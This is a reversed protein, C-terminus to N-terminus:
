GGRRTGDYRWTLRDASHRFAVRLTMKASPSATWSLRCRLAHAGTRRCSPRGTAASDLGKAIRVTQRRARVITLKGTLAVAGKGQVTTVSTGSSGDQSNTQVVTSDCSADGGQGGSGGSAGAGGNGGVATQSIDSSNSQSSGNSSSSTQVHSTCSATHGPQGAQGDSGLAATATLVGGAAVLLAATWRNIVHHM